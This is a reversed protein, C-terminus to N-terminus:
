AFEWPLPFELLQAIEAASVQYDSRLRLVGRREGEVEFRFERLLGNASYGELWAMVFKRCEEGNVFRRNALIARIYHVFRSAPLIYPLQAYLLASATAAPNDYQRPRHCSPARFFVAQNRGKWATLPVFGSTALAHEQLDDWACAPVCDVLGGGEVGTIASCWGYRSFARAIVEALAFSGHVALEGERIPPAVLALYRSQPQDRVERWRRLDAEGGLQALKRHNLAAAEEWSGAGFMAPAVGALLPAHIAAAVQALDELMRMDDPGFGADMLLLGFPECPGAGFVDDHVRKFLYSQDFRGARELDKRVEERTASLVRFRVRPCAEMMRALRAQRPISDVDVFVRSSFRPLPETSQGALDTVVGVVFPLEREEIGAAGIRPYTIRVREM